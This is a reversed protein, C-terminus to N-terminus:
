TGIGAMGRKQQINKEKLPLPTNIDPRPLTRRQLENWVGRAPPECVPKYWLFRSLLDNFNEWDAIANSLYALRGLFFRRMHDMRTAAIAGLTCAWILLDKFKHLSAEKDYVDWFPRLRSIGDQLQTANRPMQGSHYPLPYLVMDDFILAASRCICLLVDARDPDPIEDLRPFSLFGCHVDLKPPGLDFLDATTDMLAVIEAATRYYYFMDYSVPRANTADRRSELNLIVGYSEVPPSDVANWHPVVRNWTPHSDNKSASYVDFSCTNALISGFKSRKGKM